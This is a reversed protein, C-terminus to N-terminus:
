HQTAAHDACGEGLNLVLHVDIRQFLHGAATQRQVIDPPYGETQIFGYGKGGVGVATVQTREYENIAVTLGGDAGAHDVETQPPRLIKIGGLRGDVRCVAGLKHAVFALHNPKSAQATRTLRSDGIGELTAQVGHANM